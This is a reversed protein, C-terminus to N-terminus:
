KGIKGIAARITSVMGILLEQIILNNDVKSLDFGEPTHIFGLMNMVLAAIVLIHTKKGSLLALFNKM